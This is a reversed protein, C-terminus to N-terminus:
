NLSFKILERKIIEDSVGFGQKYVIKEAYNIDKFYSLQARFMKENFEQKFLKNAKNIIGALGNYKKAIFYLDVYDKWKARMGLAYAKMAGLTLLDPLKIIDEFKKSYNIEFPYLFFTLQVSNIFITFEGIKNVFVRDIINNRLITRKINYNNFSQSSFLDFDISERHGIYLAIATGGVLGFNKKFKKVLPLLKKQELTLIAKHM